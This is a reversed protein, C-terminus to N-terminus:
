MKATGEDGKEENENRYKKRTSLGGSWGLEGNLSRALFLLADHWGWRHFGMVLDRASSLKKDEGKLEKQGKESQKEYRKKRQTSQRGAKTDQADTQPSTGYM